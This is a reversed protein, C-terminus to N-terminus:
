KCEIFFVQFCARVFNSIRFLDDELRLFCLSSNTFHESPLFPFSNTMKIEKSFLFCMLNYSWPSLSHDWTELSWTRWLEKSSPNLFAEKNGAETHWHSSRVLRVWHRHSQGSALELLPATLLKGALSLIQLFLPSDASINESTPEQFVSCAPLQKVELKKKFPKM